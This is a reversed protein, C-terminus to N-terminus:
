HGDKKGDRQGVEKRRAFNAEAKNGIWNVLDELEGDGGITVPINDMYVVDLGLDLGVSTVIDVAAAKLETLLATFTGRAADIEERLAKRNSLSSSAGVV